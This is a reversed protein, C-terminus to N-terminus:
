RQQDFIERELQPLYTKRLRQVSMQADRVADNTDALTSNIQTLLAQLSQREAALANRKSERIEETKTTGEFAVSRDISNPTVDREVQSLRSRTSGQREVLDIQLKQLNALREESRALFELGLILKQQKETFNAGGIKEFGEFFIKLKDSLTQVSVSIKGLDAAINVFPDASRPPASGQGMAASGAVTMLVIVFIM